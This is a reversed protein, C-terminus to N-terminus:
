PCTTASCRPFPTPQNLTFSKHYDVYQLYGYGNTTRGWAYLYVTYACNCTLAKPSTTMTIVGSWSVPAYAPPAGPPVPLPMAHADYTDSVVGITCNAGYMGYLGYNLLHGEADNATIKFTFEHSDTFRHSRDSVSVIDCPLVEQQCSPVTCPATQQQYIALIEITPPTNDVLVRKTFSGLPPGGTSDHLTLTFDYTGDEATPYKVALYPPYWDAADGTGYEAPIEYADTGSVPAVTVWKYGPAPPTSDWRQMQWAVVIQESPGGNKSVALKYYNHGLDRKFHTLNAFISLTGGFPANKYAHDFTNARGQADIETVSILGIGM